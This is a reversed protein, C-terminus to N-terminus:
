RLGVDEECLVRGAGAADVVRLADERLRAGEDGGLRLGRQYRAISADVDQGFASAAREARELWELAREPPARRADCAYAMARLAGAHGLPPAHEAIKAYRRIRRMSARPDGSRMANAECLGAIAAFSGAYMSAWPRFRRHEADARLIRGLAERGDTEYIDPLATDVATVFRQFTPEDGWQARVEAGRARAADLAGRLTDIQIRVFDVHCRMASDDCARAGEVFRRHWGEAEDLRQAFYPVQVRHVMCLMHAFTGQLGGRELAEVVEDFAEEADGWRGDRQAAIGDLFRPLLQVDLTRAVGRHRVRAAEIYRSALRVPGRRAAGFYAFYGFLLDVWAAREADGRRLFSRQARGLFRIGALPDFYGVIVGVRVDLEGKELEVRIARPGDERPPPLAPMPRVARPGLLFRIGALLAGFSPRVGPDGSARLVADLRERGETVANASLLSHAEALAFTRRTDDDSAREGLTRWELAAAAYQAAHDLMRARAARLADEDGRPRRLAVAYLEAALGFAGVAAADEAARPARAAAEDVRDARVLHRVIRDEAGEGEIWLDALEGHARRLEDPRLVREAAVRVTDHYLTVEGDPGVLGARRM